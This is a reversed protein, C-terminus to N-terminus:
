ASKLAAVVRAQIPWTAEVTNGIITVQIKKDPYVGSFLAVGPDEGVVFYGTVAEDKRAIWVGYGYYTGEGEGEAALQPTLMKNTIPESLLRNSLLADWFKAMDPATTFAGGDPGGVIPVAYFNTKWGGNGDEIYGYATGTPLRDMAFYGSDNMACPAFIHTEVYRPFSLGSLQEVILGLVIFGANSYSWREGPAFKMPQNAFMPLFDSPTRIEYMPREKWLAAFDDMVEEDFYDPIGSSHTLLHHVTIAPDFQPFSIPLCDKLRTDFTLLGQQVLQCIGIGTFIKAGSAMGFKTSPTNPIAETKNALGYGQAFVINGNERISIVGSFPKQAHQESIIAELEALNIAM